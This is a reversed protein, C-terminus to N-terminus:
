GARRRPHTTRLAWSVAHHASRCPPRIPCWLLPLKSGPPITEVLLANRWARAPWTSCSSPVARNVCHLVALDLAHMLSLFFSSRPACVSLSVAARVIISFPGNLQIVNDTFTQSANQAVPDTPLWSANTLWGASSQDAATPAGPRCPSTCLGLRDGAGTGDATWSGYQHVFIRYSDGITLNVLAVAIALSSDGNLVVDVTGSISGGLSTARLVCTATSIQPVPVAHVGALSCALVAILFPLM